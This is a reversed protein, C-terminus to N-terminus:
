GTISAPTHFSPANNSANSNPYFIFHLDFHIGFQGFSLVGPFINM